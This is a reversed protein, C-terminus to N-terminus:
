ATALTIALLLVIGFCYSTATRLKSIETQPTPDQAVFGVKREKGVICGGYLSIKQMLGMSM